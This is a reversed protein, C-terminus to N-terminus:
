SRRVRVAGVLLVVMMMMLHQGILLLLRRHHCHLLRLLLHLQRQLDREQMLGTMWLQGIRLQRIGQLQLLLLLRGHHLRRGVVVQLLLLLLDKKGLPLTLMLRMLSM